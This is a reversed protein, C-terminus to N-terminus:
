ELVFFQMVLAWGQVQGPSLESYIYTQLEEAYGM